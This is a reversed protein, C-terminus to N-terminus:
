PKKTTATRTTIRQENNHTYAMELEGNREQDGRDRPRETGRDRPVANNGRDEMMRM